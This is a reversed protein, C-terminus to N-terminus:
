GSRLSGGPWEWDDWQRWLDGRHLGLRHENGAADDPHGVRGSRDARARQEHHRTQEAREALQRQFFDVRRNRRATGTDSRELRRERGHATLSPGLARIMVRKPANGLVIFGGILADDGTGVQLRTSINALHVPTSEVTVQFSQSATAGAADTATVTITASGVSKGQVFLDNSIVSASAIAPHDSMASFIMPRTIGNVRALNTVRPYGSSYNRLPLNTFASGYIASFNYVPLAAIADATTMGAASVVGFVTFGGNTSDLNSPPGSNDALNIFWQSTASNPDTSLKAMSITGRVNHLDTRAENPIPSFTIVPGPLMNPPSFPDQTSVYGGSQIVFGPVSRHFFIPAPTGFNPDNPLYAGSDIYSLFNDVTIPTQQDYLTIDITGLDTTLRVTNAPLDPDSFKTNLDIENAPTSDYVTLDPIQASVVPAAHLSSSGLRFAFLAILALLPLRVLFM